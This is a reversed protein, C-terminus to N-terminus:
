WRLTLNTGAEGLVVRDDLSTGLAQMPMFNDISSNNSDKDTLYISNKGLMHFRMFLSIDLWALPRYVVRPTLSVLYGANSVLPKAPDLQQHVDWDMYRTGNFVMFEEEVQAYDNKPDTWRVTEARYEPLGLKTSFRYRFEAALHVAVKDVAGTLEARLFLEDGLDLFANTISSNRDSLYQVSDPFRVNFGATWGLALHRLLQWRGLYTIEVDTIGTGTINFERAGPAENGTPLKWRLGLGMSLTPDDKRLFQYLVGIETDGIDGEASRPRQADRETSWVLPVNGWFTWNETFGFRWSIDLVSISYQYPAADLKGDSNFYTDSSLFRYGMGMELVSKGLSIGKETELIPEEQWGTHREFAGAAASLPLALWGLFLFFVPLNRM